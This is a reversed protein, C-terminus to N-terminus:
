NSHYNELIKWFVLQEDSWIYHDWMMDKCFEVYQNISDMIQGIQQESLSHWFIQPAFRNAWARRMELKWDKNEYIPSWFYAPSEETWPYWTDSFEIVWYRGDYFALQLTDYMTRM